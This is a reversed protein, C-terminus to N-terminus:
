LSLIFGKLSFKERTANSSSLWYFSEMIVRGSILEEVNQVLNKSM